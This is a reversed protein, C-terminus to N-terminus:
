LFGLAMLGVGFLGLMMGSVAPASGLSPIQSVSDAPASSSTTPTAAGTHKATDSSSSPSPTSSSQSDDEQGTLAKWSKMTVGPCATMCEYIPQLEKMSMDVIEKLEKAGCQRVCDYATCPVDDSRFLPEYHELEPKSWVGKGGKFEIEDSHYYGRSGIPMDPNNNDPNPEAPDDMTKAVSLRIKAGDPAVSAPIKIKLEKDALDTSNVLYCVTDLDRTPSLALFVRIDPAGITADFYKNAGALKISVEEDAKIAKPATLPSQSAQAAHASILLLGVEVLPLIM